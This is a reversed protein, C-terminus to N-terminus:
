EYELFGTAHWRMWLMMMMMRRRREQGRGRGRTGRRGGGSQKKDEPSGEVLKCVKLKGLFGEPAMRIDM